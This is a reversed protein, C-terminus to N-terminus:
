YDVALHWKLKRKEAEALVREFEGLDHLVSSADKIVAPNQELHRLLAKVTQLGEGAEFWQVSPLEVGAPVEGAFFDEAEEGSMSFFAMLPRVGLQRALKALEPEARSLTKGNVFPDFDAPQQEFEIYLAVGV